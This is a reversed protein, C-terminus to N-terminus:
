CWRLNNVLEILFNVRSEVIRLHLRAKGVKTARHKRARGGVEGLEDGIVGLLPRPHDPRGIDLRVSASNRDLIGYCGNRSITSASQKGAAGYLVPASKM